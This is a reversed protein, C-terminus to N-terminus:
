LIVVADAPLEGTYITASHRPRLEIAKRYVEDRDKSHCLVKGGIVRQSEDVEPDELLVWESDFRNEIEDITLVEAMGDRAPVEPMVWPPEDRAARAGIAAAARYGIRKGYLAAGPRKALARRSAELGDRDGMEYEGTEIDIVLMRGLNTEDDILPRIRSQYLYEGRECIEDTSYRPHGM